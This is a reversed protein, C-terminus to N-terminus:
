EWPKLIERFSRWQKSLYEDTALAEAKRKLARFAIPAHTPAANALEANADSLLVIQREGIRKGVHSAVLAICPLFALGAVSLYCLAGITAICVVVMIWFAPWVFFQRTVLQFRDKWKPVEDETCYSLFILMFVLFCAFIIASLIAASLMLVGNGSRYFNLNLVLLFFLAFFVTVWLLFPLIQGRAQAFIQKFKFPKEDLTYRCCVDLAAFWYALGIAGGIVTAATSWIKGLSLVFICLFMFVGGLFSALTYFGLSDYINWFYRALFRNYM